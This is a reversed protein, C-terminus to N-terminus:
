DGDGGGDGWGGDSDDSGDYWDFGTFLGSSSSRKQGIADSSSYDVKKKRPPRSLWWFWLCIMATSLLIGILVHKGDM